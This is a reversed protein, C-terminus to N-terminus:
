NLPKSISLGLYPVTIKQQSNNNQLRGVPVLSRQPFQDTPLFKEIDVEYDTKFDFNIGGSETAPASKRPTRSFDLRNYDLLHPDLLAPPVVPQALGSDAAPSSSDAGWGSVALASASLLGAFVCLGRAFVRM